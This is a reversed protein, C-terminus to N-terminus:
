AKRLFNIDQTFLDRIDTINERVMFLRDIGIGWALVKEKIGLPLTVEPRFIGAPLVEIWGHKEHYLYGQVSPETFPFYAPSFKVKDTKAIKKAFTTLLYLLNRFNVEGIVIGELQNFETLHRADVIDPRFCRAIAFYKGPIKPKSALIRASIATGQSRLVLKATEENNFKYNWGDSGTKWGNEHTKKVQELIKINKRLDAKGYVFYLDHIGRAPHNQPMFLSDCNWFNSEVLPGTAEEFGLSLLEQRVEDLFKLYPHRKGGFIDPLKVNLDYIRFKKGKWKKSKIMEPTLQELLEQKFMRLKNILEHCEPTVEMSIKEKREVIIIKKRKRLEELISRDQTPVKELPLPLLELFKEEPFKNILDEKTKSLIVNRNEIKIINKSKLVGLAIQFENDTLGSQEKVKELKLHPNEVLLNLLKREPLGNKKYLIGNVDLDVIEESAKKIKVLDKKELFQLARKLTTEDLGSAEEIKEFDRLELFPLIKKEIPSLSLLKNEEM